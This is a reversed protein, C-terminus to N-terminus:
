TTKTSYEHIDKEKARSNPFSLSLPMMLLLMSSLCSSEDILNQQLSGSSWSWWWWAISLLAVSFVIFSDYSLSEIVIRSSLLIFQKRAERSVLAYFPSVLLSFRSAFPWLIWQSKDRSSSSRCLSLSVSKGEIFSTDGFINIRLSLWAISFSVSLCLFLSQRFTWQYSPSLSWLWLLM